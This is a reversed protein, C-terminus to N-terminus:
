ERGRFGAHSAMDHPRWEASEGADLHGGLRDLIRDADQQLEFLPGHRPPRSPPPPPRPRDRIAVRMVTHTAHQADGEQVRVLALEHTRRWAEAWFFAVITLVWLILARLGTRRSPSMAMNRFYSPLNIIPRAALFINLLAPNRPFHERSFACFEGNGTRRDEYSLLM